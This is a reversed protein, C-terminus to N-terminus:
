IRYVLYTRSLPKKMGANTALELTTKSERINKVMDPNGFLSLTSGNDLLISNGKTGTAWQKGINHLSENKVILGNRGVKTESKSKQSAQSANDNDEKDDSEKESKAQARMMAKKVAWQDKPRAQMTMTKKTM